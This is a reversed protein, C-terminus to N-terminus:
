RVGWSISSKGTYETLDLDPLHEKVIKAYGIAGKREIPYVLVGSINTKKGDALEILQERLEDLKLKAEDLEIKASIFDHSLKEAIKTQVLPALHKDPKKINELYDNYFAKLKPLNENFWDHSFVVTELISGKVSWQYFYAQNRGTCAMEMMLQAYYHPQEFVPKFDDSDRKGYPCKIELIADDGILGDPSAGLWEHEPHIHFGTEIVDLGSELEFDGQAISEFNTGYDVAINSIFESEEGLSDRVMSRMVDKPKSFPSLGLIAGARSGTIKGVRKKFWTESRQIEM